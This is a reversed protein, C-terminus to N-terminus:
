LDQNVEQAMKEEREADLRKDLAEKEEKLKTKEAEIQKNLDNKQEDSLKSNFSDKIPDPLPVKLEKFGRSGLLQKIQGTKLKLIDHREVENFQDDLFLVFPPGGERRYAVNFKNKYQYFFRKYEPYRSFEEELPSIIHCHKITRKNDFYFLLSFTTAFLAIFLLGNKILDKPNLPSGQDTKM